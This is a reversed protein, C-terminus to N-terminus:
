VRREADDTYSEVFVQRFKSICKLNDRSIGTKQVMLIFM